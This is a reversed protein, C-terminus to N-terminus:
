LKSSEVLDRVADNVLRPLEKTGASSGVKNVRALVKANKVDVFKLTLVVSGELLAVSGAVLYDVGLANGIEAVCSADDCGVATKVKDFGLISNIDDPGIAEFGSHQLETLVLEDVIFGIDGLEKARLPMAACRLGPTAIKHQSGPQAVFGAHTVAPTATGLVPAAQAADIRHLTFHVSDPQTRSFGRFLNIILAPPWVASWFLLAGSLHTEIGKEDPLDYGDLAVGIRHVGSPVKRPRLTDPTLYGTDVGDILIRAGPPDSTVALSSACGM